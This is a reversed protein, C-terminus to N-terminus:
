MKPIGKLHVDLVISRDLVEEAIAAECHSSCVGWCREMIDLLLFCVYEASVRM